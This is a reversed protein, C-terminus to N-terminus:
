SIQIQCWSQWVVTLNSRTAKLKWRSVYWKGEKWKWDTHTKGYPTNRTFLL